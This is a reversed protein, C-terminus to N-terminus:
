TFFEFCRIFFVSENLDKENRKQQLIQEVKDVMIRM